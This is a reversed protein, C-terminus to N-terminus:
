SVDQLTAVADEYFDGQNSIFELLDDTRCDPNEELYKEIKEQRVPKNNVYTLVALTFSYYADSISNLIKTLEEKTM